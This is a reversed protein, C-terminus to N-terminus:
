VKIAPIVITFESYENKVSTVTIEGGHNQIIDRSLYLGVGAAEGTTKTTFFPDFIKSIIADEIGIGNDRIVIRYNDGDSTLSLSIRADYSVRQAKKVIAYISNSLMSMLTKSMLEPNGHIMLSDEAMSVDISIDYEKIEVTYETGLINVTM